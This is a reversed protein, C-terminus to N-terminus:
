LFALAMGARTQVHVFPLGSHMVAAQVGQIYLDHFVIMGGPKVHQKCLEIDKACQEQTHLGDIFAMDMLQCIKIDPNCYVNAYKELIGSFVNDIVWPDIDFTYVHRATDALICTSVGLGTGIELVNKDEALSALLKGEENDNISLRPQGTGIEGPDDPCAYGNIPSHKLGLM